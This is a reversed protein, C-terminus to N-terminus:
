VNGDIRGILILERRGRSMILADNGNFKRVVQKLGNWVCIPPNHDVRGSLIEINM